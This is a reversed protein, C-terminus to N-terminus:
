FTLNQPDDNTERKSDLKSHRKAGLIAGFHSHYASPPGFAGFHPGLICTERKNSKQLDALFDGRLTAPGKYSYGKPLFGRSPAGLSLQGPCQHALPNRTPFSGSLPAEPFGPLSRFWQYVGWRAQLCPPPYIYIYIYM